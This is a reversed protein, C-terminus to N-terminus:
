AGRERCHEALHQVVEAASLGTTDVILAGEPVRLAGVARMEDLSDREAM